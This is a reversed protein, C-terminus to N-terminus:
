ANYFEYLLLYKKLSLYDIPFHKHLSLNNMLYIDRREDYKMEIQRDRDKDRSRIREVDVKVNMNEENREREKM